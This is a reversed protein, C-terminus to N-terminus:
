RPLHLPRRNPIQLLFVPLPASPISEHACHDAM